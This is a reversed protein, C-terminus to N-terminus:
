LRSEGKRIRSSNQHGAPLYKLDTNMAMESLLELDLLILSIRDAEKSDSVGTIIFGILEDNDFAPISRLNPYNSFSERLQVSLAKISSEVEAFEAASSISHNIDHNSLVTSATLQQAKVDFACAFSLSM